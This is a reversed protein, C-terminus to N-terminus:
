LSNGRNKYDTSLTTVDNYFSKLITHEKLRVVIETIIEKEDCPWGPHYCTLVPNHPKVKKENLRLELYEIMEKTTM